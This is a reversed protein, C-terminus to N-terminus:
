AAEARETALSARGAEWANKLAAVTLAYNVPARSRAELELAAALRSLQLFGFSGADGKITHAERGIVDQDVAPDLAAMRALRADMETAFLDLAEQMAAEGIEAALEACASPDVLRLDDPARTPSVATPATERNGPASGIARAMAALLAQKRVPKAVLDDMGAERCLLADEPFANATFAIIPTATNPGASGRISRTAAPGDMHPMRMDMLILDFHRSAALAVAETGDMARVSEIAFARLMSEAVVHNTTNDDALLLRLPRGLRAIIEAVEAAHDREESVVPQAAEPLLVHFSVTTGKGITSSVSISGEMQEVLRKCIALGLGSGGFRRNISADAQVFEEFLAGIRDPAIGIGTDEVKWCLKVRGDECRQHALSVTVKGAATFKIANSLVNLLVQNLRAQDGLVSPIADEISTEIALGKAVARPGIISLTYDVVSRPIFPAGELSFRGSELRTYDLIDNLIVLLADGAEYIAKVSQHQRPSLDEELLSGAMGLVANMPTRIEHSMVALFQSKAKNAAEAADRSVRLSQEQATIVSFQRGLALLALLVLGIAIPTVLITPLTANVWSWFAKDRDIAVSVVVPFGRTVRFSLIQAPKGLTADRTFTASEIDPLHATFIPDAAAVPTGPKWIRQSDVLVTGDFRTLTVSAANSEFLPRYQLELFSINVAAVLFGADDPLRQAVPVFALANNEAGAVSRKVIPAGIAIRGANSRQLERVYDHASTDYGIDAGSLTSDRVRGTADILYLGRIEPVSRLRLRAAHHNISLRVAGMESETADLVLLVSQLSRQTQDEVVRTLTATLRATESVHARNSSAILYAQLLVVITAILALSWMAVRHAPAFPAGANAPGAQSVRTSM